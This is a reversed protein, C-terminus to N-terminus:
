QRYWHNRATGSDLISAHTKRYALERNMFLLKAGVLCLYVGLWEVIARDSMGNGFGAILGAIAVSATAFVFYVSQEFAPRVRLRAIFFTATGFILGHAAVLVMILRTADVSSFLLLAALATFAAAALLYLPVERSRRAGAGIAALFDTAAALLLVAGSLLVVGILAFVEFFPNAMVGALYLVALGLVLALVGDIFLVSLRIDIKESPM